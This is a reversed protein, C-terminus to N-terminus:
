PCFVGQQYGRGIERMEMGLFACAFEVEFHLGGYFFVVRGRSMSVRSVPRPSAQPPPTTAATM